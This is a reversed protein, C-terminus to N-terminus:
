QVELILKQSRTKTPDGTSTVVLSVSGTATSASPLFDVWFSGISQQFGLYIKLPLPYCNVTDCLSASWTPPINKLSDPIDLVLTDGMRGTNEIVFPFYAASDQKGTKLTDTFTLSFSYNSAGLRIQGAQVVAGSKPDQLFAVIGLQNKQWAALIPVTCTRNLTDNPTLSQRASIVEPALLSRVVFCHLTEGNNAKYYISDEYVAFQLTLTDYPISDVAILAVQSTITDASIAGTLGLKVPSRRTWHQLLRQQYREYIDATTGVEKETGAFVSAPIGSIGYFDKRADAQPIGLPDNQSLHYELIALSDLGYETRLSDLAASAAPCNVCWGATFYEILVTQPESGTV